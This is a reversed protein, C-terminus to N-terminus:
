QAAQYAESIMDLSELPSELTKPVRKGLELLTRRALEEVLAGHYESPLDVYEDVSTAYRPYSEFFVIPFGGKNTTSSGAIKKIVQVGGTGTLTWAVASAYNPNSSVGEIVDEDREVGNGADSFHMRRIKDVRYDALSHTTTSTDPPWLIICSLSGATIDSAPGNSLVLAGNASDDDTVVAFYAEDPSPSVDWLMVLAGEADTAYGVPVNLRKTTASYTVNDSGVYKVYTYPTGLPAHDMFRCVVSGNLKKYIDPLVMNYRALMSDNTLNTYNEAGCLMRADALVQKITTTSRAM